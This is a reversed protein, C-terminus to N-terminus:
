KWLSVWLSPHLDTYEGTNQDWYDDHDDHSAAADASTEAIGFICDIEVQTSLDSPSVMGDHEYSTHDAVDAMIVPTGATIDEAAICLARCRHLVTIMDDTSVGATTSPTSDGGSYPISLNTGAYPNSLAATMEVYPFDIFAVGAFAMGAAYTYSSNLASADTTECTLDVGTYGLVHHRRHTTFTSTDFILEYQIGEGINGSM